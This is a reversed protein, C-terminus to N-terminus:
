NPMKKILLHKIPVRQESGERRLGYAREPPVSVSFSEGVEKGSMADELGRIIGSTGHMYLVPDEDHSNELEVDASEDRLRYHFKVVSKKEIKM